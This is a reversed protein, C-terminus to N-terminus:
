KMRDKKVLTYDSSDSQVVKFKMSNIADYDGGNNCKFNDGTVDAKYVTLPIHNYDSIDDKLHTLVALTTDYEDDSAKAVEQGQIGVQEFDGSRGIKLKNYVNDPKRDNFGSSLANTTYDYDGNKEFSEGTEQITNYDEDM